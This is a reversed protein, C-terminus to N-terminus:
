APTPEPDGYRATFDAVWAELNRQASDDGQLLEMSDSAGKLVRVVLAKPLELDLNLAVELVGHYLLPGCEEFLNCYPTMDRGTTQEVFDFLALGAEYFEEGVDEMSAM